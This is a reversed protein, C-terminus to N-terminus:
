AFVPHDFASFIKKIAVISSQDEDEEQVTRDRASIVTGYAGTGEVKILEFQEPLEFTTGNIHYTQKQSQSAQSQSAQSQVTIMISAQSM